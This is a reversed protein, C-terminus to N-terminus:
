SEKRPTMNSPTNAPPLQPPLLESSGHPTPKADDKQSDNNAPASEPQRDRGPLDSMESVRSEFQYVVRNNQFGRTLSAGADALSRHLASPSLSAANINNLRVGMLNLSLAVSFFAMAATMAMRPHFSTQASEIRFVEVTRTWTRAWFGPVQRPQTWIASPAEPEYAPLTSVVTAPAGSTSALIKALLDAPPAPSETKLMSMWAAGRQAHEFEEACRVCGAIHRDFAQQESATLTGDVADPCMAEWVSCEATPYMTENQGM